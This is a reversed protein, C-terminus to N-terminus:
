RLSAFADDCTYVTTTEDANKEQIVEAQALVGVFISLSLLLLNKRAPAKGTLWHV